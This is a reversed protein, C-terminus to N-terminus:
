SVLLTHRHKIATGMEVLAPLLVERQDEVGTLWGTSTHVSRWLFVWMAVCLEEDACWQYYRRDRAARVAQQAATPMSKEGHKREEITASAVGDPIVVVKGGSKKAYDRLVGLNHPITRNMWCCDGHTACEEEAWCGYQDGGIWDVEPPLAYAGFEIGRVDRPTVM